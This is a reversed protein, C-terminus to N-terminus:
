SVGPGSIVYTNAARVWVTAMARSALTRTGQLGTGALELTVGAGQTVILNGATSNFLTYVDHLTLGTNLTFNATPLTVEGSVFSTSPTAIPLTKLVALDGTGAAGLLTRANPANATNALQAGLDTGHAFEVSSGTCYVAVRAGPAIAVSNGVGCSIFVAHGGSTNNHVFYLKSRQPITVTRFTSLSGTFTLFMNRAEDVAENATTLTINTNPINVTATGAIADEVLETLGGNVVDGWTGTLEGTLPLVLRLSSTYSSPM